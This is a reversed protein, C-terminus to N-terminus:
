HGDKQDKFAQTIRQVDALEILVAERRPPALRRDKAMAILDEEEALWIPAHAPTVTSNRCRAPKCAGILPAEGRQDAPLGNQCEAQGADWMCHNLTGLHLDPFEAHLLAVQAREDAVQARLHTDIVNDLRAHFRAAGPGVAVTEGARRAKLLDVLKRAAAWELEHDFEKAWKADMQGYNVTTRNALARRAAHKLQLGLAIESDPERGTILSMTRRFMHPRVHALPIQPLRTRDRDANVHEIFFDIDDAAEIGRRGMLQKGTPPRLTAFLHSSHWSLREAVALAEAVPEIVWWFLEPQSPDRKIKRSAIAPSGFYTTLAGREIEQIESDRMLSLGAVFCYCAARIMRLEDDLERRNITTRWPRPEGDPGTVLAFGPCDITLYRHTAEGVVPAVRGAAVAEAVMARRRLGTASHAFLDAKGRQFVHRALIGYVPTGAAGAADDRDRVPVRNGPEALWAALVQDLERATRGEPRRSRPVYIQGSTAAIGDRGAIPQVQGEAAAEMVMDRRAKQRGNVHNGRGFLCATAGGTILQSLTTWVPAGAEARNWDVVHVPVAHAPDALWKTVKDDLEASSTHSAGGTRTVKLDEALKDCLDLIDPAFTHIYTWAARLLPWWTAPPISPTSLGDGYKEVVAATRRAVEVASEDKWPDTFDSIGTVAASVEALRRVAHVFHRLVAAGNERAQDDLFEQWDDPSWQGLDAPWGHTQAWRMVMNIKLCAQAVTSLSPPEAMLFVSAQRLIRHTPNLLAFAVERLQLNRQPDDLPFYVTWMAKPRNSPRRICDGPWSRREGFVPVAIGDLLHHATGFVPEDDGFVDSVPAPLPAPTPMM